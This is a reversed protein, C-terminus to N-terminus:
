GEEPRSMVTFQQTCIYRRPHKTGRIRLHRLSIERKAGYMIRHWHFQMSTTVNMRWKRVTRTIAYNLSTIIHPRM